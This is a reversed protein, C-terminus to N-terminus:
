QQAKLADVEKQKTTIKEAMEKTLNQVEIIKAKYLESQEKKLAVLEAEATAIQEPTAPM